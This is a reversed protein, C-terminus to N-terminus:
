SKWRSQGEFITGTQGLFYVNKASHDGLVRVLILSRVITYTASAYPCGIDTAIPTGLMIDAIEIIIRLLKRTPDNLAWAAELIPREKSQFYVRYERNDSSDRWHSSATSSNQLIPSSKITNTSDVSGESSGGIDEARIHRRSTAEIGGGVGAGIIVFGLLVM